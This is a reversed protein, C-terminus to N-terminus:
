TAHVEAERLDLLPSPSRVPPLRHEFNLRPPPSSTAWELTQGGWPDDGAITGHRLSRVVNALFLLIGAAVLFSGATALENLGTFGANAPYDAVRRAMGDYGLVFMPM